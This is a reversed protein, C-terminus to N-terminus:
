ILGDRVPNSSLKDDDVEVLHTEVRKLISFVSLNRSFSLKDPDWHVGLQAFFNYVLDLECVQLQLVLEAMQCLVFRSYKAVSPCYTAWIIEFIAHM